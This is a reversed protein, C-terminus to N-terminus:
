RLLVHMHSNQGMFLRGVMLEAVCALSLSVERVSIIPAKNEVDNWEYMAMRAEYREHTAERLQAVPQEDFRNLTGHKSATRFDQKFLKALHLGVLFLECICDLAIRNAM